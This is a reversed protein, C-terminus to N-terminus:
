TAVTAGKSFIYPLARLVIFILVLFAKPMYILLLCLMLIKLIVCYLLEYSLKQLNVKKVNILITQCNSYINKGSLYLVSGM